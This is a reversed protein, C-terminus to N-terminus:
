VCGRHFRLSLVRLVVVMLLVEAFEAVRRSVVRLALFWLLFLLYCFAFGLNVWGAKAFAFRGFVGLIFVAFGCGKRAKRRQSFYVM